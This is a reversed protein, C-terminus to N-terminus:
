PRGNEPNFEADVVMEITDNKGGMFGIGFDERKIRTTGTFGIISTGRANKGAGVLRADIVMPKNFGLFNLNGTIVGTTPGTRRISTSTFTIVPFQAVNMYTPGKLDREYVVPETHVIPDATITVKSNEIHAPDWVLTGGTVSVRVVNFSLDQHPVRAIISAHLPDVVYNGAPATAPDMSAFAQSPPRAGEAAFTPAAALAAFALALGLTTSLASRSM